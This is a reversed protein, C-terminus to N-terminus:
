KAPKTGTFGETLKKGRMRFSGTDYVCPLPTGSCECDDYPIYFINGYAKVKKYAIAAIGEPTILNRIHFFRQMRYMTYGAVVVTLALVGYRILRVGAHFSFATGEFLRYLLMGTASFIFGYGFRPDPAQLFWFALGALSAGLSVYLRYSSRSLIKKVFVTGGLLTVVLLALSAKEAQSRNTWWVPLWSQLSGAIAPQRGRVAQPGIRAYAYIYQKELETRMSDMKWETRVMGGVASPFVPYGSTLVNRTVFPITILLASGTLVALARGKALRILRYIVYCCVLVVPISSLKITVAIMSLFFVLVLNLAEHPDNRGALLYFVLWVYVAAVFDPSTSVVSLRLQGFDWLSITLLLLFLLGNLLAQRNGNSEKALAENIKGTVFILFWCAVSANIFTLATTHTFSFGFLACLLYWYGQYGYRIHLHALGPVVRYQEIWRITQVHYGLTDPHIIVWAGMVLVLVICIGLLLLTLLHYSKVSGCIAHRFDTGTQKYMFWYGVGATLMVLHLALGGLPIFLSAIGAMVAISSLGTICVVPFSPWAAEQAKVTNRFLQVTAYGYTWCLLSIYVIALFIQLM